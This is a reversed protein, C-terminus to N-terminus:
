ETVSTSFTFSANKASSAIIKSSNSNITAKKLDFVLFFNNNVRFETDNFNGFIYDFM